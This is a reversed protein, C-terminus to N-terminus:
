RKWLLAAGVVLFSAAIVPWSELVAILSTLRLIRALILVALFVTPVALSLAVRLAISASHVFLRASSARATREKEEDSVASDLLSAMAMRATTVALVTREIARSRKLSWFFLVLAAAIAPYTM